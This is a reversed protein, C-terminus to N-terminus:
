NKRKTPEEVPIGPREDADQPLVLVLNHIPRELTSLPKTRKGDQTLQPNGVALKVKRVLGDEDEYAEIVRALKWTNRPTDQEKM